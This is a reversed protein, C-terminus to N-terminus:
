EEVLEFDQNCINCHIKLLDSKSKIETGCHCCYKYQPSRPKMNRPKSEKVVFKLNIGEFKKLENVVNINELEVTNDVEDREVITLTGNDEKILANKLEIKKSKTRGL